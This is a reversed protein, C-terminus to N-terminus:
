LTDSKTWCFSGRDTRDFDAVVTIQVITRRNEDNM